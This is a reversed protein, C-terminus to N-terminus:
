AAPAERRFLKIGLLERAEPSEILLRMLRQVPGSIEREGAEWRRVTRGSSAGIVVALGHTNLGLRERITRFEGPTMDLPDSIM